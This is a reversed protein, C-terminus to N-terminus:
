GPVYSIYEPFVQTGQGLVAIAVLNSVWTDWLISERIFVDKSRKRSLSHKLADNGRLYEESWGKPAQGTVVSEISESM